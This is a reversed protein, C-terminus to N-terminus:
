IRGTRGAMPRAMPWRLEDVELEAGEVTVYVTNGTTDHPDIYISSIDMGFANLSNSDNGGPEADSGAVSAFQEVGPERGREARPGALNAGGSLSGYM